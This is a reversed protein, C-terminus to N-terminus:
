PKGESAEIKIMIKQNSPMMLLADSSANSLDHQSIMFQKIDYKIKCGKKGGPIRGKESIGSM